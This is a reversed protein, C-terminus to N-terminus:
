NISDTSLIKLISDNKMFLSFLITKNFNHLHDEPGIGSLMLLKPTNLAGASLIVEKRALVDHYEGYRFFRVGYARKTDPDILVQWFDQKDPLQDSSLGLQILSAM